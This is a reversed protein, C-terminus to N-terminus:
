ELIAHGLGLGNSLAVVLVGVTLSIRTIRQRAQRSAIFALTAFSRPLLHLFGQMLPRLVAPILLIFAVLM